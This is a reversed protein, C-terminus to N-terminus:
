KYDDIWAKAAAFAETRSAATDSHLLLPFEDVTALTSVEWNWLPDGKTHKVNYAYGKYQNGWFETDYETEPESPETSGGGGASPETEAPKRFYRWALYGGGAVAAAIAIWGITSPNDTRTDVHHDGASRLHPRLSHAINETIM